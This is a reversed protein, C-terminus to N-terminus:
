GRTVYCVSTEHSFLKDWKKLMMQPRNRFIERMPNQGGIICAQVYSTRYGSLGLSACLRQREGTTFGNGM